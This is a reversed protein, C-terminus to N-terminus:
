TRLVRLTQGVYDEWTLSPMGQPKEVALTLGSFAGSVTKAADAVPM